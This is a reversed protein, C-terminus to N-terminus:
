RAPHNAFAPSEATFRDPRGALEFTAQRLHATMSDLNMRSLQHYSIPQGIRLRFTEGKKNFLERPLLPIRLKPHLIAALQYLWSNRGEIYMPVVTAQTMRVLRAVQRRWPPDTIGLRRGQWFAVTGSPYLGLMGGKKVWRIASKLNGSNKEGDDTSRSPNVFFMHKEFEPRCKFWVHSLIKFDPRISQLFATMLIGEVGGTPHNAVIIVPGEAPIRRRDPRDVDLKLDLIETLSDFLTKDDLDAAAQDCLAEIHTLKLLRKLIRVFM